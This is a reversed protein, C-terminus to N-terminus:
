NGKRMQHFWWQIIHQVIWRGVSGGGWAIAGLLAFLGWSSEIDHYSHQFFWSSREISGFPLRVDNSSFADFILILGIAGLGAPLILRKRPFRAPTM